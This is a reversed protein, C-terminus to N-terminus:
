NLCHDVVIAWRLWLAAYVLLTTAIAWLWRRRRALLGAGSGGCIAAAIAFPQVEESSGCRDVRVVVGLVAFAIAGGFLALALHSRRM